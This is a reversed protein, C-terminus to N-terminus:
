FSDDAVRFESKLEDFKFIRLETKVPADAILQPVQRTLRDIEEPSSFNVVLVLILRLQKSDNKREIIQSALVARYLVERVTVTSIFPRRLYKVEVATFLNSEEAVADFATARGGGFSAQLHFSVGLEKELKQIALREALVYQSRIADLSPESAQHPNPASDSISSGTRPPRRIAEPEVSAIEEELRETQQEEPLTKLFSEDNKYDAPAYLKGHHRTVLRYFAILVLVPFLVVFWVLPLKQDGQLKDAAAGLLLTAFGYILAIFLAIIGLPNRALSKADRVFGGLEAM